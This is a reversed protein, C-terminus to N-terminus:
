VVRMYAFEIDSEGGSNNVIKFQLLKQGKARSQLSYINWVDATLSEAGDNLIASFTLDVSRSGGNFMLLSASNVPSLNSFTNTAPGMVAQIAYNGANTPKIALFLNNFGTMDIYDPTAQPSLVEGTNPVAEHVADIVFLKDSGLVGEFKGTNKDYFGANATSTITQDVTVFDGLPADTAGEKARTSFPTIAKVM